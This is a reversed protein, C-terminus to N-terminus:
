ILVYVMNVHMGNLNYINYSYLYFIHYDCEISVVIRIFPQAHPFQNKKQIDYNLINNNDIIEM